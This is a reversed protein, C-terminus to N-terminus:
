LSKRLGERNKAKGFLHKKLVLTWWQKLLGMGTAWIRPFNFFQSVGHERNYHHVSVERMRYGADQIKKMMEVCIVGSDSELELDDFIERRFLRFDCDVDKMRLGFMIRVLINYINGILIRYWPDNRVMKFGNIVDIDATMLPLFLAMERPDYQGDGDTYFILDKTANKIGTKLAAGYGRNKEHHIARVEPYATALEDLVVRTNDTSGDNVVIIEYDDTIEKLTALAALVVSGISGEDHYAPFFATIGYKKM